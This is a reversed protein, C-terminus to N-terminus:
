IAARATHNDAVRLIVGGQAFQAKNIKSESNHQHIFLAIIIVLSNTKFSFQIYFLQTRHLNEKSFKLFSFVSVHFV